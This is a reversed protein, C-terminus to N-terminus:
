VHRKKECHYCTPSRRDEIQGGRDNQGGHDNGWCLHLSDLCTFAIWHIVSSQRSVRLICSVTDALILSRYMMFNQTSVIM